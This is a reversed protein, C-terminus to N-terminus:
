KKSCEPMEALLQQVIYDIQERSCGLSKMEALFTKTAQHILEDKIRVVMQADRRLFTGLGRLAVTLGLYEMERYARQVTNPNVGLHVAFERQSPLQDGPRLQGTAVAKKIGDIIQLYIPQDSTFEIKFM